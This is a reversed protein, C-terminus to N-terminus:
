ILGKEKALAERMTFTRDGDWEVASKPLWVTKTGDDILYAADTEHRLKAEIDVLDSQHPLRGM